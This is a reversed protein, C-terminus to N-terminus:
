LSQNQGIIEKIKEINKKTEKYGLKYLEDIKNMDLLGIKKSKIKITLDLGKMEYNSLEKCLLGISSGAVEVLNKDCDLNEEEEFMINLVKKAGIKKLEKWPVNERIGGDILKINKYKCPSFVVPYSCSARVAKGIEIDNVFITNELKIKENKCSSFCIVKGNCLNVSPIILPKEIDKITYIKRKNCVRNILNEIQKGSNLGDIVIRGTFILGLILKIINIFDIYKIKKCYKKFIKYMDDSTFGCAYLCAIISGSSTGGVYDFKINAEELAKIAGIHAAGKVGGGALCLGNKM